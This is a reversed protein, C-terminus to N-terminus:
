KEAKRFEIIEEIFKKHMHNPYKELFIQPSMRYMSIYKEWKMAQESLPVMIVEEMVKPQVDIIPESIKEIEVPTEILIPKTDSVLFNDDIEAVYEKQSIPEAILIEETAEKKKRGAKAM